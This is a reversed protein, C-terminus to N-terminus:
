CEQLKIKKIEEESMGTVSAITTLDFGQSLMNQVVQYEKKRLGIAEGEARGAELSQIKATELRDFEDNIAKERMDYIYRLKEDASVIQLKKVATNMMNNTESLMELDEENDANLFKAWMLRGDQCVLHQPIKKLEVFNLELCDTLQANTDIDLMRARRYWREDSFMKYDVFNLAIARGLEEYRHGKVLQAAFLKCMYYSSRKLMDSSNALQIEIDIHINDGTKVRVDLRSNKDEPSEDTVETNTYEIDQASPIDLELVDNLMHRLLDKSDERGFVAKFVLDLKPSFLEQGKYM